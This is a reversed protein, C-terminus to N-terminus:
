PLIASISEAAASVNGIIATCTVTDDRLGVHLVIEDVIGVNVVIGPPIEVLVPNVMPPLDFGMPPM